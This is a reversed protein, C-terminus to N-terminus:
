PYSARILNRWDSGFVHLHIQSLQRWANSPQSSTGPIDGAFHGSALDLFLPNGGFGMAGRDLLWDHWNHERPSFIGAVDSSFAASTWRRMSGYVVLPPGNMGYAGGLVGAFFGCVLLWIRSDRELEPQKGGVWKKAFETGSTLSYFSFALIIVGLSGKVLRQHSSTLLLLGIPIGLVTALLLWAASGVHVKKWDQMVVILAITISLLVALPAAVDLPIYFALLPVAM